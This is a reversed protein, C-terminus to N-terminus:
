RSRSRQSARCTTDPKFGGFRRLVYIARGLARSSEELTLKIVAYSGGLAKFSGLGLRQGEDKISTYPLAVSTARL